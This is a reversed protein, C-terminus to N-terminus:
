RVLWSRWEWRAMLLFGDEVEFEIGRAEVEGVPGAGDELAFIRRRCIEIV